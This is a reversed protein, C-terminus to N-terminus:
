VDQATVFQKCGVPAPLRIEVGVRVEGWCKEGKVRRWGHATVNEDSNMETDSVSRVHRSNM